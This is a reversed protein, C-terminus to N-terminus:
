SSLAVISGEATKIASQPNAGTVIKGDVVTFTDWPGEPEIYVGGEKEAVQKVSPLNDKKRIETVGLIEEGIDTFGTIKKGKILPENTKPDILNEFIIAGRCVTSVVGSNNYIDTIIKQLYKAKPYDYLTGHGASAFFIDYDKSNVDSAKKINKLHLNYDSSPDEFIARDEGTLYDESISLEDYGFTGTESVFQIEYGNKKYVQFPHIAEIAVVGTRKGDPYFVPDASTLAILVKVM